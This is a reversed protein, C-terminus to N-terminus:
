MKGSDTKKEEAKAKGNKAKSKSKSKTKAETKKEDGQSKEKAEMKKEDGMGKEAAYGASALFLSAILVSLFRKM